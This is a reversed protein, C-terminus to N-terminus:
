PAPTLDPVGEPFTPTPVTSGCSVTSENYANVPGGIQPSVLTIESRIFFTGGAIPYYDIEVVAGANKLMLNCLSEPNDWDQVMTLSAAWAGEVTDSRTSDPTGGQWSVTSPNPAWAVSSVHREYSNEGIKLLLNKQATATNKSKVM